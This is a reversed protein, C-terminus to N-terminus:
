NIVLVKLASEPIILNILYTNLFNNQKLSKCKLSIILVLILIVVVFSTM